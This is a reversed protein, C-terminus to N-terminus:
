ESRMTTSTTSTQSNRCIQCSLGRTSTSINRHQQWRWGGRPQPQQQQQQEPPPQDEQQRLELVPLQGPPPLPGPLWLQFISWTSYSTVTGTETNWNSWYMFLLCTPIYTSVTSIDSCCNVWRYCHCHHAPGPPQLPAPLAPHPAPRPLDGGHRPPGGGRGRERGRSCASLTIHALNLCSFNATM